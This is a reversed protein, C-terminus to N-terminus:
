DNQTLAIFTDHTIDLRQAAINVVPVDAKTFPILVEGHQPTDIALLDGGGFNCLAKVTGLLTGNTSYANLGILDTHYFDDDTPIPLSDRAVYLLTKPLTEAQTCTDINQLKVAFEDPKLARHRQVIYTKGQSDHLAGYLFVDAPNATLSVLRLEGRIGFTGALRAVAVQM